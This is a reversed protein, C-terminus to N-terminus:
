CVDVSTGTRRELSADQKEQRPTVPDAIDIEANSIRRSASGSHRPKLTFRKTARGRRVACCVLARCM